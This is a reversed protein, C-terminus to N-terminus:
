RKKASCHDVGNAVYRNARKNANLNFAFHWSDSHGLSIAAHQGVNEGAM